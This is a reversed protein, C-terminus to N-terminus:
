NSEMWENVEKVVDDWKVKGVESWSGDWPDQEFEGGLVEYAWEYFVDLRYAIIEKIEDETM